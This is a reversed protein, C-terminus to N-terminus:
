SQSPLPPLPSSAAEVAVTAAARVGDPREQEDPQNRLLRLVVPIVLAIVMAAVVLIALLRMTGARRTRLPEWDDEPENFPDWM